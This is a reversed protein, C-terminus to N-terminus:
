ALLQQKVLRGFELDSMKKSAEIIQIADNGVVYRLDPNDITVAKLISKAVEEASIAQDNMRASVNQFKQAMAAYPSGSEMAMQAVKFNRLLNTGVAGPEILAVKIGFPETEYRLSEIMGELAFKTGHYASILPLAVRGGISSINVITGQQHKRMIPLWTHDM